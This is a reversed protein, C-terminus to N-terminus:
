RRRRRRAMMTRRRKMKSQPNRAARMRAAKGKRAAKRAAIRRRPDVRGQVSILAKGGGPMSRYKRRAETLPMESVADAEALLLDAIQREDFGLALAETIVGM